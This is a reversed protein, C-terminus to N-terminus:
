SRGAWRCFGRSSGDWHRGLALAVVRAMEGAVAMVPPPLARGLTWMWRGEGKGGIPRSDAGRPLDELALRAKLGIIAFGHTALATALRRFGRRTPKELLVSGM